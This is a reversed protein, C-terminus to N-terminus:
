NLSIKKLNQLVNKTIYYVNAFIFSFFLSLAIMLKKNPSSSKEPIYAKDLPEVVPVDRSEQIAEQHRQTELYLIIQELIKKDRFLNTYSRALTPIKDFPISFGDTSTLGGSQVLNYQKRLQEAISRLQSVMPSNPSYETLAVNLEMEAKALQLAVEIAQKVLAQTQDEIKFVKNERQFIELENDISDLKQRYSYIEREVYERSKRATSTNRMRVLADLGKVAYESVRSALLATSDKQKSSPFFSTSVRSSIIILGSRLLHVDLMKQVEVILELPTMDEYNLHTALNLTDIIFEAIARSKLVDSFMQSQSQQGPLSGLGLGSALGGSMNQLISSLGTMDSQKPAMITTDSNYKHPMIFSFLLVVASFVIVMLWIPKINSKYISCLRSFSYDQNISM